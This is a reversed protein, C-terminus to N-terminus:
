RRPLPSQAESAVNGARVLRTQRREHGAPPPCPRSTRALSLAWAATLLANLANKELGNEWDMDYGDLANARLFAVVSEAFRAPNRAAQLYM